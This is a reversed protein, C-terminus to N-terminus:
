SPYPTFCESFYVEGGQSVCHRAVAAECFCVSLSNLQKIPYNGADLGPSPFGSFQPGSAEPGGREGGQIASGTHGREKHSM